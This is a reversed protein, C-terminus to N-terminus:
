IVSEHSTISLYLEYFIDNLTFTIVENDRHHTILDGHDFEKHHNPCLVLINEPKIDGHILDFRLLYQCVNLLFAGLAIGEDIKM